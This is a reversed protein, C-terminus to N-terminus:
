PNVYRYVAGFTAASSVFTVYPTLPQLSLGALGTLGLYRFSLDFTSFREGVSVAARSARFATANSESAYPAMIGLTSLSYTAGTSETFPASAQLGSAICVAPDYTGTIGALTQAETNTSPTRNASNSTFAALWALMATVTDDVGNLAFIGALASAIIDSSITTDTSWVGAGSSGDSSAATYASRAQTTSLGSVYDGSHNADKAGTVGFAVLEAIMTELTASTAATFYSTSAADGFTADMGIVDGLEVLFEAAYVDILNYRSSLLGTANSVTASCGGVHYAGGASPYSTYPSQLDRCQSHRIFTACRKAGALYLWNGTANFGKIFARGAAIASTTAFTGGALFGGYRINDPTAAIGGGYHVSILYTLCRDLVTLATSLWVAPRIGEVIIDAMYSAAAAAAAVSSAGGAVDSPAVSVVFDFVQAEEAQWDYPSDVTLPKANPVPLIRFPRQRAIAADEEERIRDGPADCEWCLVWPGKRHLDSRM